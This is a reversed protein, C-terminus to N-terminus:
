RAAAWSADAPVTRPIVYAHRAIFVAEDAVQGPHDDDLQQREAPQPPHEHAVLMDAGVSGCGGLVECRRGGVM